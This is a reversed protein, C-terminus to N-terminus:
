IFLYLNYYIVKFFPDKFFVKNFYQKHLCKSSLIEVSEEKLKIIAPSFITEIDIAAKSISEYLRYIQTMLYIIQNDM